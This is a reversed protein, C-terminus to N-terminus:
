EAEKEKATYKAMMLKTAEAISVGHEKAYQEAKEAVFARFEHEEEFDEATVNDDDKLRSKNSKDSATSVRAGEFRSKVENEFGNIVEKIEDISLTALFREFLTANFANGQARVGAELAQQILDQRYTEALEAKGALEENRAELEKITDDKASLQGKVDELEGQVAQLQESLSQIQNDKETLSAELNQFKVLAESLQEPTEAEIGFQSLVQKFQEFNVEQESRQKLYQSGSTREDTDTFLVVGGATYYQYITADIPVDKFNEMLHLKTGKENERVTPTMSFNKQIQARRAAGAYVLSNELLEGNGDAGAIVYCTEQRVVGDREIEYTKGPLHACNRWDRIDFGCISCDWRKASFGISTDFATGSDIAKAIDDTSLGSETNMGLPIYFSGYVSKMYEGTEQNLDERIESDFSRGVPLRSTDHGLLLAIGAKADQAFKRLLNEHIKSYYSTPQDDIMLDNFVYCNEETLPVLTFRNIKELQEPTPKPM